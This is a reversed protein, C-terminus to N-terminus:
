CRMSRLRSSMPGFRLRRGATRPGFVRGKEDTVVRGVVILDSAAVLQDLETFQHRAHSTLAVTETSPADDSGRYSVAM